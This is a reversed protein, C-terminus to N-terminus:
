LCRSVLSAQYTRDFLLARTSFVFGTIRRFQRKLMQYIQLLQPMFDDMEM